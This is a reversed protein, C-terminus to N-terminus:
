LNHKSFSNINILRYVDCKIKEVYKNKNIKKNINIVNNFKKIEKDNFLIINDGKQKLEGEFILIDDCYIQMYKTASFRLKGSSINEIKIYKIQVIDNFCIFLLNNCISDEDKRFDFLKHYYFYNKISEMNNIKDKNNDNLYNENYNDHIIIYNSLLNNKEDYLEFKKLSIMEKDGFNSIFILKFIFGIPLKNKNININNIKLYNINSNNELQTFNIKQYYDYFYIGLGKWLMINYKKNENYNFIIEIDKAGRDLGLPMNYNWIDIRSLTMEVNFCIEIFPKPNLSTLWMLDENITNNIGNFINELIRNENEKNYIIKLDKPLAGVAM